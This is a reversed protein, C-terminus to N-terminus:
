RRKDHEEFRQTIKMIINKISFLLLLILVSWKVFPNPLKEPVTSILAHARKVTVILQENDYKLGLVIEGVNEDAGGGIM